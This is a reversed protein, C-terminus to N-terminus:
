VGLAVDVSGGFDMMREFNAKQRREFHKILQVTM